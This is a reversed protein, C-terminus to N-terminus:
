DTFKNGLPFYFEIPKGVIDALCSDPAANVPSGIVNESLFNSPQDSLANDPLQIYAPNQGLSADTLHRGVAFNQFIFRNSELIPAAFVRVVEAGFSEIRLAFLSNLTLPLKLHFLLSM